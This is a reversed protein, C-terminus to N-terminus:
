VQDIAPLHPGRFPSGMKKKALGKVLCEFSTVTPNTHYLNDTGDVCLPDNSYLLVSTPRLLLDIGLAEERSSACM